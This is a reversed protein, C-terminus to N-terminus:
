RRREFDGSRRRHDPSRSRPRQRERDRRSDRLPGDDYDRRRRGYRDDERRREVSRSRSRRRKHERARSDDRRHRRTRERSRSRRREREERRMGDRSRSRRRDRKRKEVKEKGGKLGGREGDFGGLTEREEEEPKEKGGGTFAGFGVGQGLEVAGKMAGSEEQELEATEQIAKKVEAANAGSAPGQRTVPFGLAESLADNEAEKIRAIEAARQTAAEQAADSSDGKAYWGLDKNKQWRGVPAMLSHGLYNERHQDDKIDSWKFEARGGRSGEKRVGALLDM